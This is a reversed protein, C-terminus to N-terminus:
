ETLEFYLTRRDTTFGEGTRTTGHISYTARYRGPRPFVIFLSENLTNSAGPPIDAPINAVYQTFEDVDAIVWLRPKKVALETPLNLYLQVPSALTASRSSNHITPTFRYEAGAVFKKRLVATDSTFLIPERNSTQWEGGYREYLFIKQEIKQPPIEQPPPIQVEISRQVLFDMASKQRREMVEREDQCGNAIGVIQRYQCLAWDRCALQTAQNVSEWQASYDKLEQSLRRYKEADVRGKISKLKERQADFGLAMGRVDGVLPEAFCLREVYALEERRSSSLQTGACSALILAACGIVVVGIWGCRSSRGSREM